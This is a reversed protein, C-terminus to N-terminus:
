NLYQLAPFVTQMKAGATQKAVNASVHRGQADVTFYSVVKALDKAQSQMAEAAAAAEEVMAANKQTVEDMDAIARNIQEIGAEQESSALSIASMIATVRQVSLVIETMTTGAAHALQSGSEIKESSDSILKKIERAATASRQALNRVEGAVVAFGRGQEGARAAEVAANLALINTQFAIGDIVGTIDVIKKAFKNIADMAEVVDSVVKGGKGAVGSASLALQNAERANSSNQKVTSALEEMSSATEELAGAQHETRRSLDLNGSAIERSASNVAQAGDRVRTVTSALKNTMNSLADFLQGIEDSRCHKISTRLDGASVRVALAVAQKLPLVISRTLLWALVCGIILALLGLAILLRWSNQFQHASESELKRAQLTQYELLKELSSTYSKFTTDMKTDVLEGVEQTKGGDKLKFIERRLALYTKKQNAVALLLSQEASNKPLAALRTELDTDAKEGSNLQALFYESVELSDSRAISVARLGNLRAAGLLESTLQQKALKDNVLNSATDDATQLRWLAIASMCAMVILVIAFSAVVKLGTNLQPLKM